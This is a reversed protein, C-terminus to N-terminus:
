IAQTLSVANSTVPMFMLTGEDLPPMFEKGIGPAVHANLWAQGQALRDAFSRAAPNATASALLGAPAALPPLLVGGGAVLVLSVVFLTRAAPLTLGKHRLAGALAPQYLRRAIRMVPNDEERHVRGRVLFTALVPVLTVSLVTAGIMAFTKTFALPHFLKGE